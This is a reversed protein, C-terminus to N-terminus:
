RFQGQAFNSDPDNIDYEERVYSLHENQKKSTPDKRIKHMLKNFYEQGTNGTPGNQFIENARELSCSLLVMGRWELPKGEVAPSGLHIKVGGKVACEITYGMSEYYEFNFDVGNAKSAMVYKKSPDANILAGSHGSEHPPRSRPNLKGNYWDASQVDKERMRQM